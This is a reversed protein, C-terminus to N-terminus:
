PGPPAAPRGGGEGRPPELRPPAPEGLEACRRALRHLREVDLAHRRDRRRHRDEEHIVSGILRQLADAQQELSRRFDGAVLGNSCTLRFLAAQLLICLRCAGPSWSRYGCECIDPEGRSRLRFHEAALGVAPFDADTAWIQERRSSDRIAQRISTPDSAPSRLPTWPRSRSRGREGSATALAEPPTRPREADRSRSREGRGERPPSGPPTFAAAEAGAGPAPEDRAHDGDRAPDGMASITGNSLDSPKHRPAWIARFPRIGM